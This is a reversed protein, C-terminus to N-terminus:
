VLGVRFINQNEPPHPIQDLKVEPIEEKKVDELANWETQYQKKPVIKLPPAPAKPLPILKNDIGKVGIFEARFFSLSSQALHVDREKKSAENSSESLDEVQHKASPASKSSAALGGVGTFPASQFYRKTDCYYGGCLPYFLKSSTM